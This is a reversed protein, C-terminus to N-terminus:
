TLLCGGMNMFLVFCISILPALVVRRAARGLDGLECVFFGLGKRRIRELDLIQRRLSLGM